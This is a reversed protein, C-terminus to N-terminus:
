DPKTVSKNKPDGNGTDGKPEKSTTKPNTSDTPKTTDHTNKNSGSQNEKIEGQPAPFRNSSKYFEIGIPTGLAVVVAFVAVGLHTNSQKGSEKALESQFEASCKLLKSLDPHKADDKLGLLEELKKSSSMFVFSLIEWGFTLTIGAM